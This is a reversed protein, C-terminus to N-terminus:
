KIEIKDTLDYGYIASLLRVFDNHVETWKTGHSYEKRFSWNGYESVVDFSVDMEIEKKLDDDWM